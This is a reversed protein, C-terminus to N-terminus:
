RGNILRKLAFRIQREFCKFAISGRLLRIRDKFKKGPEDASGPDGAFQDDFVRCAGCESGGSPIGVLKIRDQDRLKAVM